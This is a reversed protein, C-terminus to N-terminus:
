GYTDPIRVGLIAFIMSAVPKFAPVKALTPAILRLFHFFRAKMVAGLAMKFPWKIWWPIIDKKKSAASSLGFCDALVRGLWSNQRRTKDAHKPKASKTAFRRGQMLGLHVRTGGSRSTLSCWCVTTTSGAAPALASSTSSALAPLPGLACGRLRGASRVVSGTPPSACLAAFARMHFRRENTHHHKTLPARLRRSWCALLTLM